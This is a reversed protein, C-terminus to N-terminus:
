DGVVGAFYWKGDKRFEFYYGNDRTVKTPVGKSSRVRNIKTGRAMSRRLDRWSGNRENEDIFQLWEKPTLGGGGDFFDSPMMGLLAAHDKKNIAVTFQRWFSPWGREAVAIRAAASQSFTASTVCLLLLAALLNSTKTMTLDIKVCVHWCQVGSNVRSRSIM